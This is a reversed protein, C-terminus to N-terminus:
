KNMDKLILSVDMTDVMKDNNVDARLVIAVRQQETLEALAGTAGEGTLYIRNVNYTGQVATLDYIDVKGGTTMTMNVDLKGKENLLVKYSDDGEIDLLKNSPLVKSPVANGEVVIAYVHAYEHDDEDRMYKFSTVDYMVNGDYEFSPVEEDTYVLVIDWGIVYDKYETHYQVPKISFNFTKEQTYFSDKSLQMKVIYPFPNSNTLVPIEDGWETFTEGNDTSYCYKVTVDDTVNEGPTMVTATHAKGDYYVSAGETTASLEYGVIKGGDVLVTVTPNSINYNSGLDATFEYTGVAKMVNDEAVDPKGTMTVTAIRTQNLAVVSAVINKTTDIDPLTVPTTSFGFGSESYSGWYDATIKDGKGDTETGSEATKSIVIPTYGAVYGEEGQAGHGEVKDKNDKPMTWNLTVNLPAISVNEKGSVGIYGARDIKWFITYDGANTVTPQITSYDEAEPAEAPKYAPNGTDTTVLYGDENYFLLNGDEDTQQVKGEAVDRPLIAYSITADDIVAGTLANSATYGDALLRQGIEKYSLGNNPTVSANMMKLRINAWDDKLQDDNLKVAPEQTGADSWGPTIYADVASVSFMDKLIVENGEKVTFTFEANPMKGPNFYGTGTEPNAKCFNFTGASANATWGSKPAKKVKFNDKDYSLTIDAAAYKAGLISVTVTVDDGAFVDVEDNDEVRDTKTTVEVVVQYTGSTPKFVESNEVAGVGAPTRTAYGDSCLASVDNAYIGTAQLLAYNETDSNIITVKGAEASAGQLKHGNLDLTFQKNEFYINDDKYDKLLIATKDTSAGIATTLSTLDAYGTYTGDGNPIAFLDNQSVSTMVEYTYVSFESAKLEVYKGNEKDGQVPFFGQFDGKGETEANAKHYVAVTDKEVSSQVPLRFTVEGQIDENPIIKWWEGNADQKYQDMDPAEAEPAADAKVMPKVDFSAQFTTTDTSESGTLNKVVATEKTVVVADVKVDVKQEKDKAESENKLAENVGVDKFNKVAANETIAAAAEVAAKKLEDGALEESTAGEGEGDKNGTIKIDPVAVPDGGEEMVVTIDNGEGDKKTEINTQQGEQRVTYYTGDDKETIVVAMGAPASVTGTYAYLNNGDDGKPNVFTVGAPLTFKENSNDCLRVLYNRANSLEWYFESVEGSEYLYFEKEGNAYQERLALAKNVAESISLAYYRNTKVGSNETYATDTYDYTFETAAVAKVVDYTGNQNDHAFYGTAIQTPYRPTEPKVCAYHTYGDAISLRTTVYGNSQWETLSGWGNNEEDPFAKKTVIEVYDILETSEKGKYYRGNYYDDYVIYKDVGKEVTYSAHWKEIYVYGNYNCTYGEDILDQVKKGRITEPVNSDSVAFREWKDYYCKKDTMSVYVDYRDGNHIDEFTGGTITKTYYTDVTGNFIGGTIQTDQAASYVRGYFTGGTIKCHSNEEYVGINDYFTGGTVNIYASSGGDIQIESNCDCLDTGKAYRGDNSKFTGGNINLTGPNSMNQMWVIGYGELLGGNITVINKKSAANCFQRIANTSYCYLHGGNMTFTADVGNSNNDVCYNINGTATQCLEGSELILDGYNTILNTVWNKRPASWWDGVVSTDKVANTILGRGNTGDANTATSDKITLTGGNNVTIVASGTGETVYNSIMHGALDLVINKDKAITIGNNSPIAEDDVMTVTYQAKDAPIAKIAAALDSFYGDRLYGICNVLKEAEAKAAAETDYPTQKGPDDKFYWKGDGNQYTEVAAKASAEDNYATGNHEENLYWKGDGNQYVTVTEKAAAKAADETEFLDGEYGTYTYKGAETESESVMAAAVAEKAADADAAEIGEGEYDESTYWKGDGNKYVAADKADDGTEYPTGTFGADLYYKGDGYQEVLLDAAAKAQDETVYITENEGVRWQNGEVPAGNANTVLAVAGPPTDDALVTVPAVSLVMLVALLFSILRKKSTKM